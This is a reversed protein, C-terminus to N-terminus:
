KEDGNTLRRVLAALVGIKPYASVMYDTNKNAWDFAEKERESLVTRGSLAATAESLQKTLLEKEYDAVQQAAGLQACWLCVEDADEPGQEHEVCQVPHGCDNKENAEALAKEAANARRTESQCILLTETYKIDAAEARKWAETLEKAKEMLTRLRGESVAEAATLKAKAETLLNSLATLANEKGALEVERESLETEAKKRLRMQEAFLGHYYSDLGPQKAKLAQKLLAIEQKGVGEVGLEKMADITKEQLAVVSKVSEIEDRLAQSHKSLIPLMLKWADCGPTTVCNCSPRDCVIAAMRLEKALEKLEQAESEPTM